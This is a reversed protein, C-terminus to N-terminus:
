NENRLEENIEKVKESFFDAVVEVGRCMAEIHDLFKTMEAHATDIQDQTVADNLESRQDFNPNKLFEYHLDKVADMRLNFLHTLQNQHESTPQKM